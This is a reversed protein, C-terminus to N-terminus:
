LLMPRRKLSPYGKNEVLVCQHATNNADDAENFKM